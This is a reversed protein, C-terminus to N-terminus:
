AVLLGAQAIRQLAAAVHETIAARCTTPETRVKGDTTM